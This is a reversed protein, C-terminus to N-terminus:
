RVQYANVNLVRCKPPFDVNVLALNQPDHVITSGAHRALRMNCSCFIFSELIRRLNQSQFRVVEAAKSSSVLLNLRATHIRCLNESPNCVMVESARWERTRFFNLLFAHTKHWKLPFAKHGRGKRPFCRRQYSKCARRIAEGWNFSPEFSKIKWRSPARGWKWM